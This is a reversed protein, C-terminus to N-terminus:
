DNLKRKTYYKDVQDFYLSKWDHEDKMQRLKGYFLDEFIYGTDKVNAYYFSDTKHKLNSDIRKKWYKFLEYCQDFSTIDTEDKKKWDNHHKPNEFYYGYEEYNKDLYSRWRYKAMRDPQEIFLPTIGVSDVPCNPDALWEYHEALTETTEHPLGIIFSCKIAVDDGWADKIKQLTQKKIDPGMGKGVAKASDPHFSEIGFQVERAGMRKFMDIMEPKVTMLDLRAFCWFQPKFPLTEVMETFMQVKEVSDNFTDDSIIYRRIRHNNWNDLFEQKLLDLDKIYTLKKKGILPFSCYKCRFICGRGIEIPLTEDELLCDSEQYDTIATNFEFEGLEAKVDHNIIKDVFIRKKEILDIIQNESYGLMCKDFHEDLFDVARAGGLTLEAHPAVERIKDIFKKHTRSTLAWSFSDYYIPHKERSFFRNDDGENFAVTGSDTVEPEPIWTTSVGVMLTEEGCYKDVLKCFDSYPIASIFDIIEVSYGKTRIYSALSYPGIGRLWIGQRSTETFIVVQAM